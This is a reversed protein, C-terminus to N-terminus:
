GTESKPGAAAARFQNFESDFRKEVDELWSTVDQEARTVYEHMDKEMRRRSMGSAAGHALRFTGFSGILTVVGGAIPSTTDSLVMFTVLGGALAFGVASLGGSVVRADPSLRLPSSDFSSMEGNIRARLDLAFFDNRVSTPVEALSEMADKMLYNLLTDFLLRARGAVMAPANSVVLQRAEDVSLERQLRGDLEQRIADFCERTDSAIRCTANRNM